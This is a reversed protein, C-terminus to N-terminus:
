CEVFFMFGFCWKLVGGCIVCGGVYIFVSLFVCFFARFAFGFFYCVGGYLWRVM